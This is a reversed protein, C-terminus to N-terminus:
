EFTPPPPPPKQYNEAKPVRHLYASIIQVFVLGFVTAFVNILDLYDLIVINQNAFKNLLTTTFTFAAIGIFQVAIFGIVAIFSWLFGNKGIRKAATHFTWAIVAILVIELYM